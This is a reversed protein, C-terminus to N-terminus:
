QGVLLWLSLVLWIVPFAVVGILAKRLMEDAERRRQQALWVVESVAGPRRQYRTLPRPRWVPTRERLREM